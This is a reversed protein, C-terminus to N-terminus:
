SNLLCNRFHVTDLISNFTLVQALPQADNESCQLFIDVLFFNPYHEILFTASSKFFPFGRGIVLRPLNTSVTQARTRMNTM